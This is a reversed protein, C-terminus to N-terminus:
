AKSGHNKEEEWDIQQEAFFPLTTFRGAHTEALSEPGEFGILKWGVRNKNGGYIPDAYFGQRTHLALLPFFDLDIEASTQQLAPEVAKEEMGAGTELAPREMGTLIRDQQEPTLRVFEAGFQARSKRDLEKIGEVYKARIIEVRQRWADARKGELKEFGSGDPKAYIFDLGSLYRDLFDITGAERAGPQDDSPIIRAMAAEITARQHANFFIGAAGGGAQPDTM